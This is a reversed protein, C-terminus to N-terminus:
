NHLKNCKKKFLQSSPLMGDSYHWCYTSRCQSAKTISKFPDSFYGIRCSPKHCVTFILQVYTINRFPFPKMLNWILALVRSMCLTSYRYRALCLANANIIMQYFRTCNLISSDEVSWSTGTNVDLFEYNANAVRFLVVSFFVNTIIFYLAEKMLNKLQSRNVM